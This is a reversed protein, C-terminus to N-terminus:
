GYFGPSDSVRYGLTGLASQLQQVDRGTQGPRLDRYMPISGPMVIVPRGSVELVCTGAKVPEGANLPTRTVVARGGSATAQPGIIVVQAPAVVARAVLDSELVRRQVQETIVSPPPPAAM